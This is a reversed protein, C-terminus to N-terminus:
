ASILSIYLRLLDPDLAQLKARAAIEDEGALRAQVLSLMALSAQSQLPALAQLQDILGPHKALVFAAFYESPYEEELNQFNQWVRYVSQGRTQEIAQEAYETHQEMLLCWLWLAQANEHLSECALAKRELLPAFRYLEPNSALSERVALWDPIQALAYSQHREPNGSDFHCDHLNTALRRWAFALYDRARNALTERALPSVEQQLGRLEADIADKDIQSNTQMHEGYNVLDQYDGLRQHAPNLEILQALLGAARKFDRGGLSDRLANETILLSNDMFLDLQPLDQPRIWHQTLQQHRDPNSSAQLVADHEGDWRYYSQAEACLGLAECHTKAAVLLDHLAKTNQTIKEELGPLQGYRWAEYDSYNLQNQSLLWDIISFHRQESIQRDISAIDLTSQELM